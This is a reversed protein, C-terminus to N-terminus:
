PKIDRAPKRYSAWKCQIKWAGHCLRDWTPAGIRTDAEKDDAVNVTAITLKGAAYRDDIARYLMTSQHQTLGGVPPLPDSIVAVDAITIRSVVKGETTGSDMADRIEGFWDQGNLWAVSHGALVFERAVAYALHDKGTGVPGYIVLGERNALRKRLDGTYELLSEIVKVHRPTPADFTALRCGRYREGAATVLAKGCRDVRELYLRSEEDEPSEYAPGAKLPASLLREAAEQFRSPGGIPIVGTEQRRQEVLALLEDRETTDSDPAPLTQPSTEM